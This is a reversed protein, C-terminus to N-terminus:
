KDIIVKFIKREFFISRNSIQMDWEEELQKKLEEGYPEPYNIINLKKLQEHSKVFQVICDTSLTTYQQYAYNRAWLTMEVLNTLNSTLQQFRSDDLHWHKLQLQSLQRHENVFNVWEKFLSTPHVDIHLTQLNPFHFNEPSSNGFDAFFTTVNRFEIYINEIEFHSLCFYM